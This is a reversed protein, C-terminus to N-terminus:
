IEALLNSQYNKELKPKLTLTNQEEDVDFDNKLSFMVFCFIPCNKLDSHTQRMINKEFSMPLERGDETIFCFQDEQPDLLRSWLGEREDGIGKDIQKEELDIFHRNRSFYFDGDLMNEAYQSEICKLLIFIDQEEAM